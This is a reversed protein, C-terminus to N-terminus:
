RGKVIILYLQARKHKNCSCEHGVASCVRCASNGIWGVAPLVVVAGGVLLLAVRNGGLAGVWLLEVDVGLPTCVVSGCVATSSRLVFIRTLVWYVAASSM